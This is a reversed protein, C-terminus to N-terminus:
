RGRAAFGPKGFAQTRRQIMNNIQVLVRQDRKGLLNEFHRTFRIVAARRKKFRVDAVVLVLRDQVKRKLRQTIRVGHEDVRRECPFNAVRRVNLIQACLETFIACLQANNPDYGVGSHALRAHHPARGVAVRPFHFM